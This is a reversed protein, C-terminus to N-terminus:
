PQSVVLNGFGGAATSWNAVQIRYTTGAVATFQVVGHCGVCTTPDDNCGVQTLATCTGTYVVVISDNFPAAANVTVTAPGAAPAVWTFWVDKSAPQTCLSLTATQPAALNNSFPTSGIVVGTATDCTDNIPPANPACDVTSPCPNGGMDVVQLTYSADIGSPVNPASVYVWYPQANVSCFTLEEGQFAPCAETQKQGIDTDTANVCTLGGCDTGCYVNIRIDVAQDGPDSFCTTVKLNSGNGIVKHWRGIGTTVGACTSGIDGTADSLMASASGGIAVEEAAICDDDTIETFVLNMSMAGENGVSTGWSAVRIYATTNPPIFDTAPIRSLFGSGCNDDNCGIEILDNCDGLFAQIVTDDVPGASDCMSIDLVGGTAGTTYSYWVDRTIQAAGGFVCADDSPVGASLTAGSNTIANV